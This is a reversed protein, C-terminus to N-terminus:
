KLSNEFSNFFLCVFGILFHFISLRLSKFIMSNPQSQDNSTSERIKMIESSNVQMYETEIM